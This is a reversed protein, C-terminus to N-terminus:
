GGSLLSVMPNIDLVNTNGDGNIDGNAINCDPYQAQYAAPDSLALVFANIDLVNTAGDCNMDGPHSLCITVHAHSVSGLADRVQLQITHSSRIQGQADIVDNLMHCLTPTSGLPGDVSDTWSIQYPPVGGSVNAAVCVLSGAPVCTGDAAGSIQAVPPLADAWMAVRHQAYVPPSVGDPTERITVSLIFAPRLTDQTRSSEFEWYGLTVSNITVEYAVVKLGTLLADAGRNALATLADALPITEVMEGPTVERWAGRFLRQFQGNNGFAVTMSGGPGFVPFGGGAGLQRQYIVRIATAFSTEPVDQWVGNVNTREGQIAYDVRQAVAGPSQIEWTELLANANNVADQEGPLEPATDRWALWRSTDEIHIAGTATKVRLELAGDIANMEEMDSDPGVSSDCFRGTAQCLTSAIAQVDAPTVMAPVTNFVRMMPQSRSTDLEARDIVVRFGQRSGSEFVVPDLPPTYGDAPAAVSAGASTTAFSWYSYTSDPTPDSAVTGEGWIFDSGMSSTEGIVAATYGAGHYEEAANFWSTKITEAPDFISTGNLQKGFERGNEVDLMVTDYGCILHAGFMTDAWSDRATSNDLVRCASFCLWEMEGGNSDGLADNADGPLLTTDDHTSDSFLVGRQTSGFFSDFGSTGHGSFYVLDNADAYSGNTGGLDTRKFDQEWASGDPYGSVTWSSPLKDELAEADDITNFLPSGSYNEVAEWMLENGDGSGREGADPDVQSFYAGLERIQVRSAGVPTLRLGRVRADDLEIWVAQGDGADRKAAPTRAGDLNLLDVTVGAADSDISIRNLWRPAGTFIVELAEGTAANLEIATAPDGDLLAAADLEVAGAQSTRQVTSLECRNMPLAVPQDYLRISDARVPRAAAISGVLLTGAALRGLHSHTIMRRM